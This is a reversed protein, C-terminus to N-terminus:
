CLMSWKDWHYNVIRKNV